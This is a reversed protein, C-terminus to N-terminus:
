RRYEEQGRALAELESVDGVERANLPHELRGGLSKLGTSSAVLVVEADASVVGAARHARLAALGAAAANELLVGECRAALAVSDAIEAESVKHMAGSSDRVAQLAQFTSQPSSISSASTAHDVVAAEVTDSGSALAATLSGYIEGGSHAPVREALGIDVLEAFARRSAAIADGYCVPFYMADPTRRGLQEWTEYAIPKYGDLAYPNNGVPPDSYNSMPYWGYREVAEAVLRWRERKSEAVAIGAGYGAVFAAMLPDVGRAFVVVARLGARNAHAATAAAANGTSATIVTDIGLAVAHRVAMAAARDKFSWSLGRSEDKIWVREVDIAAALRPAPYMPSPAPAAAAADDPEAPLLARYRATGHAPGEPDADLDAIFRRAAVTLDYDTRLNAPAGAARCRECGRGHPAPDGETGCRICVLGVCRM